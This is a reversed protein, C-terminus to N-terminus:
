RNVERKDARGVLYDISVDFFAALAILNEFGPKTEGYEVSQYYHREQMGVAEAVQKQTVKREMRLTKLRAPVNM